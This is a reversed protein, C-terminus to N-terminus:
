LDEEKEDEDEDEDEDNTLWCYLGYAYMGATISTIVAGAALCVAGAANKIKEFM